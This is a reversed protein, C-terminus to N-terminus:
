GTWSRVHWCIARRSAKQIWKLSQCRSKESNMRDVCLVCPPRAHSLVFCPVGRFMKAYKKCEAQPSLIFCISAHLLLLMMLKWLKSYQSSGQQFAATAAPGLPLSLSLSSLRCDLLRDFCIVLLFRLSDWSPLFLSRFFCWCFLLVDFSFFACLIDHFYLVCVLDFSLIELM